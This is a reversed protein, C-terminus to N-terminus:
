TKTQERWMYVTTLRRTYRTRPSDCMWHCALRSAPVLPVRIVCFHFYLASTINYVCIVCAHADAFIKGPYALDVNQNDMEPRQRYLHLYVNVYRKVVRAVGCLFHGVNSCCDLFASRQCCHKKECQIFSKPLLIEKWNECRINRKVGHNIAILLRQMVQWLHRREVTM